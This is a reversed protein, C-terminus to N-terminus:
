GLTPRLRPRAAEYADIDVASQLTIDIQDWGNLM